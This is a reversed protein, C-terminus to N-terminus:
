RAIGLGLAVLEGGWFIAVVVGAFLASGTILRLAAM